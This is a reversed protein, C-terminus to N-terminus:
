LENMKRDFAAADFAAAGADGAMNRLPIEAAVLFALPLDM